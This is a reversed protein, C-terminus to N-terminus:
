CSKRSHLPMNKAQGLLHLCVKIESKKKNDECDYFNLFCGKM